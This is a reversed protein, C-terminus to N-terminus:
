TGFNQSCFVAGNEGIAFGVGLRTLDPDNLSVYKLSETSLTTELTRLVPNKSYPYTLGVGVIKQNGELINEDIGVDSAYKKMVNWSALKEEVTLHKAWYQAFGMLDEDILLPPMDIKAREQNTLDIMALEWSRLIDETVDDKTLVNEQLWALDMHATKYTYGPNGLVEKTEEPEPETETPSTEVPKEPETPTPEAPQTGVAGSEYAQTTIIDMRHQTGDWEIGIDFSQAIDRLKYYNNNNISYGTYNVVIGDKIVKATSPVATLTEAVISQLESGDRTYPKDSLLSIAKNAGDWSVEFQKSTGNLVAAIDRLKFYNNGNIAYAAVNVKQGDVYVQHTSPKAQVTNALVITSTDTTVVPSDALVAPITGIGLMAGACLLSVARNLINKM